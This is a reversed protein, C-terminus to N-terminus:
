SPDVSHPSKPSAGQQAPAYWTMTNYITMCTSESIVDYHSVKPTAIPSDQPQKAVSAIEYDSQSKADIISEAELPSPPRNSDRLMESTEPKSEGLMEQTDSTELNMADQVMKACQKFDDHSLNKPALKMGPCELCEAKKSLYGVVDEYTDEIVDGVSVRGSEEHYREEPTGLERTKQPSISDKIDCVHERVDSILSDLRDSIQSYVVDHNEDILSNPTDQSHVLYEEIIIPILTILSANRSVKINRSLAYKDLENRNMGAIMRLFDKIPMM